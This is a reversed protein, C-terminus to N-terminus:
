VLGCCPFGRWKVSGEDIFHEATWDCLDTFHRLQDEKLVAAAQEQPLHHM